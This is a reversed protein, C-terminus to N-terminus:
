AEVHQERARRAARFRRAGRYELGFPEDSGEAKGALAVEVWRQELKDLKKTTHTRAWVIEGFDM